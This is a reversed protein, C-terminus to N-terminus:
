VYRIFALILREEGRQKVNWCGDGCGCAGTWGFGFSSCVVCCQSFTM